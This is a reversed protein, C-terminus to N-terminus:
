TAARNFISKIAGMGITVVLKFTLIGFATTVIAGMTILVPNAIADLMAQTIFTAPDPTDAAFSAGSFTAMSIVALPKLKFGNIVNM